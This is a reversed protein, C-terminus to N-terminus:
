GQAFLPDAADKIAKAVEAASKAGSWLTDMNPNVVRQLVEPWKVHVPDRVVYEQAQAFAKANKPPKSADLFQPGTAVSTRSPTTAGIAVEDLQADKSSIFKLFEWAADQAKTQSTISWGTGGGGTGRRTAKGIPLTAVDWKFATITRYNSVDSPNTLMMAVRGSAFLPFAGTEAEVDPKPAVGHKIILDQLFQLAEVANPETMAIAKAGGKDDKSVIAAGNNFLWSSWPRVNRNVVFGYTETRNGSKKTVKQAYDLFKDFTWTKDEWDAPPLALGAKELLDINYYINQNGYDRPLGYLGGDWRYLEISSPRFDSLDVKDRAVLDDLRVHMKKAAVNVIPNAEQLYRYVDPATGAAFLTSIKTNYDANPVPQHEVTIGPNAAQFKQAWGDRMKQHNENITDCVFVVKGTAKAPAPAAAATTPAAPAAPAQPQAAPAQSTPGPAQCAALGAGVVALTGVRLFDRRSIRNATM